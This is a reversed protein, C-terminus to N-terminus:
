SADVLARADKDALMATLVKVHNMVAFAAEYAGEVDDFLDTKMSDIVAMVSKAKDEPSSDKTVVTAKNDAETAEAKDAEAEVDEAVKRPKATLDNLAKVLEAMRDSDGIPSKITNLVADVYATKRDRVANNIITHARVIADPFKSDFATVFAQLDATLVHARGYHGVLTKGMKHGKAKMDDSIDAYTVNGSAVATSVAEYAIPYSASALRDANIANIIADSADSATVNIVKNNSM